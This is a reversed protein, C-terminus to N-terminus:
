HHPGARQVSYNGDLVQIAYWNQKTSDQALQILASPESIGSSFRHDAIELVTGLPVGDENHILVDHVQYPSARGCGAILLLGFCFLYRLRAM